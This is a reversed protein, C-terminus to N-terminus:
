GRPETSSSRVRSLASEDGTCELGQPRADELAMRGSLVAVRYVYLADPRVLFRLCGVVEGARDVRRALAGGRQAPEGRVSEFTERGAGSPPDLGRQGDFAAQTLRHVTGAAEPGCREVRLEVLGWNPRIEARVM